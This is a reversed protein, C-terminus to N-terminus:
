KQEEVTIVYDRVSSSNIFLYYNGAPKQMIKEDSQTGITTIDQVAINQEGQANRTTTWGEPLLYIFATGSDSVTNVTYKVRINGGSLAFVEGSKEKNDGTLESVKVWKKPEAVEKAKEEGSNATEETPTESGIVNGIFALALVIIVWIWWKKYWAKKSNHKDM